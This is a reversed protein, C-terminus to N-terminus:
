TSLSITLLAVEARLKFSPVWPYTAIRFSFFTWPQTDWFEAGYFEIRRFALSNPNFAEAPCVQFNEPPYSSPCDPPVMRFPSGWSCFGQAGPTSSCGGSSVEHCAPQVLLTAHFKAVFYALKLRVHFLTKNEQSPALSVSSQINITYEPDETRSALCPSNLVCVISVKLLDLVGYAVYRSQPCHLYVLLCLNKKKKWSRSRNAVSCNSSWVGAIRNSKYVKSLVRPNM